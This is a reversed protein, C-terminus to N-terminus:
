GLNFIRNPHVEKEAPISLNTSNRKMKKQYHTPEQAHSTVSVM